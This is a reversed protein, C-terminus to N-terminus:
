LMAEILVPGKTALAREFAARFATTTDVREAPVGMGAAIACWDLRPHDLSLM